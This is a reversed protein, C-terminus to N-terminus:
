DTIITVGDLPDETLLVDKKSKETGEESTENISQDTVTVQEVAGETTVTEPQDLILKENMQRQEGIKEADPARITRVLIADRPVLTMFYSDGEWEGSGPVNPNAPGVMRTKGDAAVKPLSLTAEKSKNRFLFLGKGREHFEKIKKQNAIREYKSVRKNLRSVRPPM